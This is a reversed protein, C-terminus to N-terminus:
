RHGTQCFSSPISGANRSQASSTTGAVATSDLLISAFNTSCRMWKSHPLCPKSWCPPESPEVRSASNEQALVFVDNWLRAEFRSELKPLYFYPGTGRELQARANHYFFLGFDFLSASIREGDVLVHKETLHWGRPRVMLTAINDNLKYRKGDASEFRIERRVADRLNIQGAVTNAWTPSHSDEFDAMFVNAGSNLANIIMKRDVPGTIEVRRNLLDSPIHAVKWDSERIWQTEALFDPQQGADLLQQRDARSVLLDHRRTRFTRELTAVFELADPTLIAAQDVSLPALIEVGAVHSATRTMVFVRETLRSM